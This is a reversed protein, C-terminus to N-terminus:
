RTREPPQSSIGAPRGQFAREGPLRRHLRNAEDVPSADHPEDRQQERQAHDRYREPAASSERRDNTEEGGDAGRHRNQERRLHQADVHPLVQPM